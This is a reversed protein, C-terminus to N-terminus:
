SREGYIEQMKTLFERREKCVELSTTISWFVGENRIIWRNDFSFPTPEYFDCGTLNKWKEHLIRNWTIEDKETPLRVAMNNLAYGMITVINTDRDFEYREEKIEGGCQNAVIVVAM